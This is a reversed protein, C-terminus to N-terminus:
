DAVIADGRGPMFVATGLREELEEPNHIADAVELDVALLDGGLLSIKEEIVRSITVDDFRVARLPGIAPNGEIMGVNQLPDPSKAQGFPEVMRAGAGFRKKMLDGFGQAVTSRFAFQLSGMEGMGE